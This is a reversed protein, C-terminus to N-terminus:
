QRKIKGIQTVFGNNTSILSSCFNYANNRHEISRFYMTIYGKNDMDRRMAKNKKGSVGNFGYISNFIGGRIAGFLM